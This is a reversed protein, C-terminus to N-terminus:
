IGAYWAYDSHDEWYGGKGGYLGDLSERAEIRMVFKAHKYGLQREVRLRIPAGHAEPLPKGNMKWALITQPHLADILDVSEYYPTSGFRDACHFVVYRARPSLGALDLVRSLQPGQWKGIASWGEVCDHRTIQERQPMAQLAALPLSLRRAVLGDVRLMWGAFGSALHQRYASDAVERNGNARFSPSLASETFERALADGALLRQSQMHLSEAGQLLGRFGASSNLRDCGALLLGGAGLAGSRILGRRTILKQEAM